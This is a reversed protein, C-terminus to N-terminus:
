SDHRSMAALLALATNASNTTSTLPQTSGLLDPRQVLSSAQMHARSTYHDLHPSLSHLSRRDRLILYGILTTTIDIVVTKNHLPVYETCIHASPQDRRVPCTRLNLLCTGCPSFCTISDCIDPQDKNGLFQRPRQVPFHRRKTKCLSSCELRV